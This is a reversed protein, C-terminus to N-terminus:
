TSPPTGALIDGWEAGAITLGAGEVALFRKTGEISTCECPKRNSILFDRANTVAQPIYSEHGDAHIAENDEDWSAGFEYGTTLWSNDATEVDM